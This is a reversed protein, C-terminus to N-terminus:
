GRGRRRKIRAYVGADQRKVEFAGSKEVLDVLKKHGYTRPDFDTAMNNIQSGVAGLQAWGDEGESAEIAKRLLPEAGATADKGPAAAGDAEGMLNETFIFRKCAARFSEPTKRQGFGYVDLGEERIRTALGTFDSDSSVLCFGEFRGSHVLDMADIVLAIDASNKGKTYDFNQEVKLAHKQLVDTWGKMQNSTFNGYIRRVNAEGLTAIEDFLVDAVKASTNDADILVALRNTPTDTM